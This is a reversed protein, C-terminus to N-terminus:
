CYCLECKDVHIIYVDGHFDVAPVEFDGRQFLVIM